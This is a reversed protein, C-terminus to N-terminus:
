YGALVWHTSVPPSACSYLAKEVPLAARAASAARPAHLARTSSLVRFARPTGAQTNKGARRQVPVAGARGAPGAPVPGAPVPGAPM